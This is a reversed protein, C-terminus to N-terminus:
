LTAIFRMLTTKGARNPGLLGFMGNNIELDVNHMARIGGTYIKGLNRINIEM